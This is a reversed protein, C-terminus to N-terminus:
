SCVLVKEGWRLARLKLDEVLLVAPLYFWACHLALRRRSLLGKAM